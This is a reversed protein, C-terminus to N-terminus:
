SELDFVVGAPGANIVHTSGIMAIQGGCGHIHGCVVLLPNACEITERVAVSGLSEGRSSLDLTGRPPSHSVLVAKSPCAALLQRGEAESFDYSWAGFPTKPIAGGVGWVSVGRFASGTGHLVESAPWQECAQVLEEHSESNGPVLVTATEIAALKAVVPELGRRMNGFDGAGIVFDVEAADQVLKQAATLDCHLDSFALIRM